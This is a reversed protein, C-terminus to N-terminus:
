YPTTAAWINFKGNNELFFVLEYFIFRFNVKMNKKELDLIESYEKIM